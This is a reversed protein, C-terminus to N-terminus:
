GLTFEDASISGGATALASPILGPEVTTYGQARAAFFRVGEIALKVAGLIVGFITALDAVTSLTYGFVLTSAPTQGQAPLIQLQGVSAALWKITDAFVTMFGDYVFSQEHIALGGIWAYLQYAAIPSFPIFVTLLAGFLISPVAAFVSNWVAYLILLGYFVALAAGVFIAMSLNVNVVQFLPVSFIGNAVIAGFMSIGFLRLWYMGFDRIASAYSYGSTSSRSAATAM